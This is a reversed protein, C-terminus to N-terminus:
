DNENILEPLYVPSNEFTVFDFIDKNALSYAEGNSSYCTYDGNIPKETFCLVWLNNLDTAVWNWGEAIRGKIVTIQQETLAPKSPITKIRETHAIIDCLFRASSLETWFGDRCCGDYRKLFIRDEKVLLETGDFEFEQREEVGLIESLRSM